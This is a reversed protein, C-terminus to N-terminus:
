KLLETKNIAAERSYCLHQFVVLAKLNSTAQLLQIDQSASHVLHAEQPIETRLSDHIFLALMLVFEDLLFSSFGTSTLAIMLNAEVALFSPLFLFFVCPLINVKRNFCATQLLCCSNQKTAHFLCSSLIQPCLFIKKWTSTSLREFWHDLIEAQKGAKSIIQSCVSIAHLRVQCTQRAGDNM